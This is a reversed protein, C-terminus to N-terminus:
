SFTNGLGKFVIRLALFNIRPGILRSFHLEFIKFMHEKRLKWGGLLKQHSSHSASASLVKWSLLGFLGLWQAKRKELVYLGSSVLSGASPSVYRSGSRKTQRERVSPHYCWPRRACPAATSSNLHPSHRTLAQRHFAIRNWHWILSTGLHELARHVCLVTVPLGTNLPHDRGPALYPVLWCDLSQRVTHALFFCCFILPTIKYGRTKLNQNAPKQSPLLNEWSKWSWTQQLAHKTKQLNRCDWSTSSTFLVKTATRQIM